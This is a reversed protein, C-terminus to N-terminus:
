PEATVAILFPACNSMVSVFDISQIEQNPFPNQWTSKYLRLSMGQKRSAENAGTWALTARSSQQPENAWFWWDRVDEGYVIPIEQQQGNAYHIVYRGITTGAPEQWGTGQLFHLRRCKGNVKIGTVEKPFNGGWGVLSKGSLQILGRVDFAVNVFTQEGSPLEALSNDETNAANTKPHWGKDLHANYHQTLDIKRPAPRCGALFHNALIVSILLITKRKM